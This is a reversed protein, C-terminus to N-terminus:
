ASRAGFWMRTFVGDGKVLHFLGGLAHVAALAVLATASLEHLDFIDSASFAGKAVLGPLAGDIIPRLTLFGGASAALWGLLPTLVMLVYLGVHAASAVLAQLAPLHAPKPPAGFILRMAIRLAVLALLVVGMGKHMAYLQDRFAAQEPSVNRFGIEHMVDGAIFLAVIMVAILWHIARQAWVYRTQM